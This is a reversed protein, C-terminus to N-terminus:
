IPKWIELERQKLNQFVGEGLLNVQESLESVVNFYSLYFIYLMDRTGQWVKSEFPIEANVIDLNKGRKMIISICRDELVDEIGRINAIAKPSCVEYPVPINTKEHCRVTVAGKKYGSLLMSRFGEMREPNLLKETEDMLLTCRGNQVMRFAASLTLDNSFVANHCLLYLVTLLKTKGVQEMGGVYLYPFSAFLHFLYTGITWLTLFDYVREDEFEIYTEFATKVAIYLEKPEVRANGDM